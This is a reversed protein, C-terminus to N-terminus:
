KTKDEREARSRALWERLALNVVQIVSPRMPHKAAEEAIEALLGPDVRVVPWSAVPKAKKRSGAVLLLIYVYQYATL